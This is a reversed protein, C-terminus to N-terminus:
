QRVIFIYNVLSSPRTCFVTEREGRWRAEKGFLLSYFLFVFFLLSKLSENRPYVGNEKEGTETRRSVM